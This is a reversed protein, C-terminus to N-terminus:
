VIMLSVADISESKRKLSKKSTSVDLTYPNMNNKYNGKSYRDSFEILGKINIPEGLSSRV